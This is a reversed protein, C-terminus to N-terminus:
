LANGHEWLREYERYFEPCNQRIYEYLDMHTEFFWSLDTIQHKIHVHDWEMDSHTRKAATNAAIGGVPCMRVASNRELQPAQANLARALTNNM